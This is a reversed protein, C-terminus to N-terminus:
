PCKAGETENQVARPSRRRRKGSTESLAQGRRIPDKDLLSVIHQEAREADDREFDELARHLLARLFSAFTPLRGIRLLIRERLQLVRRIDARELRVRGFAVDTKM